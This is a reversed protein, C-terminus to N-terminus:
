GGWAMVGYGAILGLAHVACALRWRAPRPAYLAWLAVPLSCLGVIAPQPTIDAWVSLALSAHALVVSTWAGARVRAQAAGVMPAGGALVALSIAGVAPVVFFHDRQAVYAAIQMAWLAAAIVGGTVLASVGGAAHVPSTRRLWPGCAVAALMLVFFSAGAHLSFIIAVFGWASVLARREFVAVARTIWAVWSALLLASGLALAWQLGCQCAAANALGVGWALPWGDALARWRSEFLSDAMGALM